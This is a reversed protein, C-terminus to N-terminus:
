NLQYNIKHVLNNQYQALKSKELLSTQQKTINSKSLLSQKSIDSSNSVHLLSTVETSNILGYCISHFVNTLPLSFHHSFASCSFFSFLILLIFKNLVM